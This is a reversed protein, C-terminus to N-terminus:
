NLRSPPRYVGTEPDRELTEMATREAMSNRAEARLAAARDAEAKLWRYALYAGAVGVSFLLLPPM